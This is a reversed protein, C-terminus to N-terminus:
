ASPELTLGTATGTVSQVYSRAVVAPPLGQSRDMKLAQLTESVWPPSAANVRIGRAFSRRSDDRSGDARRKCVSSHTPVISHGLVIARRIALACVASGFSR